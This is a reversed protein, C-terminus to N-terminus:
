NEMLFNMGTQSGLFTAQVDKNHMYALNKSLFIQGLRFTMESMASELSITLITTAQHRSEQLSHLGERGNGIKDRTDSKNGDKLM